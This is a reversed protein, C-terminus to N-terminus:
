LVAILLRGRGLQDGLDEVGVVVMGLALDQAQALLVEERGCGDAIDHLVVQGGVARQLIQGVLDGMWSFSVWGVSAM